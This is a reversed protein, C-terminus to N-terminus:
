CISTERKLQTGFHSLHSVDWHSRILHTQNVPTFPHPQSNCGLWWRFDTKEVINWCQWPIPVISSSPARHKSPRIDTYDEQLRHIILSYLLQNLLHNPNPSHGGTYIIKKRKKKKGERKGTSFFIMTILKLLRLSSSTFVDRRRMSLNTHHGFWPTQSSLYPTNNPLTTKQTYSLCKKYGAEDVKSLLLYSKGWILNYGHWVM